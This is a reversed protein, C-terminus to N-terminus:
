LVSFMCYRSIINDALLLALLSRCASPLSCGVVRVGGWGVRGPVAFRQDMDLKVRDIKFQM